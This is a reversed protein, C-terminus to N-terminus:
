YQFFFFYLTTVFVLLAHRTCKSNDKDCNSLYKSWFGGRKMALGNYGIFYFIFPKKNM